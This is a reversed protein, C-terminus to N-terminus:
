WPPAMWVKPSSRYKIGATDLPRLFTRQARHFKALAELTPHLYVRPPPVLNIASPDDAGQPVFQLAESDPLTSPPLKKHGPSIKGPGGADTSPLRPPPVLIVVPAM